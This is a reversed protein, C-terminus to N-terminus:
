DDGGTPSTPPRMGDVDSLSDVTDDTLELTSDETVWYKKLCGYKEPLVDQNIRVALREPSRPRIDSPGGWSMYKGDTQQHHKTATEIVSRLNLNRIQFGLEDYLGRRANLSQTAERVGTEAPDSVFTLDFEPVQAPTVSALRENTIRVTFSTVALDQEVGSDTPGLRNTVEELIAERADETLPNVPEGDQGPLQEYDVLIRQQDHQEWVTGYERLDDLLTSNATEISGHARLHIIDDGFADFVVALSNTLVSPIQTVREVPNGSPDAQEASNNVIQEETTDSIEQESTDEITMSRLGAFCPTPAELVPRM